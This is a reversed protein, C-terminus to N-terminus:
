INSFSFIKDMKCTVNGIGNMKNHEVDDDM